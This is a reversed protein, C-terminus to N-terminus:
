PRSAALSTQDFVIPLVAGAYDQQAPRVRDTPLMLLAPADALTHQWYDSQQQLLDGSM